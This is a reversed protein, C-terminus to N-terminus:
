KGDLARDVLKKVEDGIDLQFPENPIGANDVMVKLKALCERLDDDDNDPTATSALRVDEFDGPLLNFFAEDSIKGEYIGRLARQFTRRAQDLERGKLNSGELIQEDIGYLTLAKLAPADELETMVRELDAQNIKREKYATVLRDVQTIVETKEEDPLESDNIAAVIAERGIGVVWKDLNAAVYCVGAVCVVGGLFLFGLFIFLLGWLWSLGSKRPPPPCYANPDFPREQPFGASM